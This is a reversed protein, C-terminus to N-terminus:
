RKCKNSALLMGFIMTRNPQKSNESTFADLVYHILDSGALGLIVGWHGLIWDSWWRLERGVDWAGPLVLEIISYPLVLILLYLYALRGITSIIPFHSLPSGHKVSVRYNHWLLSWGREAWAGMRKKLITNSINGNDVDQDPGIFIGVLAGMAPEIAFPLDGM